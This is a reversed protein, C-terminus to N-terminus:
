NNGKKEGILIKWVIIGLQFEIYICGVAHDHLPVEELPGAISKLGPVPSPSVIFSLPSSFLKQSFSFLLKPILWTCLLTYHQIENGKSPSPKWYLIALQDVLLLELHLEKVLDNAVIDRTIVCTTKSSFECSHRWLQDINVRRQAVVPNVSQPPPPDSVTNQWVTHLYHSSTRNQPPTGWSTLSPRGLIKWHATLCQRQCGAATCVHLTTTDAPAAHQLSLRLFQSLCPDLRDLCADGRSVFVDSVVVVNLYPSVHVGVQWCDRPHTTESSVTQGRLM